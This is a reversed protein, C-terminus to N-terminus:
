AAGRILVRVDVDLAEAIRGCMKKRPVLDGRELRCVYGSSAGIRRGLERQSLGRLERITKITIPNPDSVLDINLRNRKSKCGEEAAEKLGLDSIMLLVQRALSASRRADALLASTM